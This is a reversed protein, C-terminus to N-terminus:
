YAKGVIEIYGYSAVHEARSKRMVLELGKPLEENLEIDRYPRIVKIVVCEEVKPNIKKSKGLLDRWKEIISDNDYYFHFKPVNLLKRVDFNMDFPVAYGTRGDEFGEEFLSPFPTAIVATDNVLAELIAYSYAEEDSLQVLYDAKKIYDQVNLTPKMNIFGEPPDPLQNDSFNLWIFPIHAENLMRALKRFRRDNDGKDGAKVRTASVLFLMDRAESRLMNNIVIGEESAEGWSDKAAQSVNILIDRGEPISLKVQNCCHLVQISKKYIINDKLKDTIRNVILYDCVISLDKTWKRVPVIQSLRSLQMIDIKEYVFIIDYYQRMERCFNYIFTSIGGIKNAYECYLVIQTKEPPNIKIFGSFPDGRLEHGWITFPVHIQCYKRFESSLAAIDYTLLWVENNEDAKKIQELLCDKDIEKLSPYHYVIRKTKMLGKKFRKIKSNIVETRYFYLYESIAGHKLGSDRFIYGVKRSFDEDETSDKKENFRIDGIFSRKFVRTCVSPNTLYDNDNQLKHDHQAGNTTLSKWSLDIVDYGGKIKQLIAAVYSIPIMDDADIFSVYEGNARDLGVNRATSCGGNKKRIVTAWSYDTQLPENSGDDVIIVEVEETIQANLVDLLERIYPEANYYPIIISLKIAKDGITM